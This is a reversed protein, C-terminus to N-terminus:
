TASYQIHSNDSSDDDYGSTQEESIKFQILVILYTTISSAIGTLVSLDIPFLGYANFELPNSMMFSILDDAKSRFDDDTSKSKMFFLFNVVKKWKLRVHEGSTFLAWFEIGHLFLLSCSALAYIESRPATFGSKIHNLMYYLQVTVCTFASLLSFIAQKGFCHNIKVALEQLLEVVERIHQISDLPTIARIKINALTTLRNLKGEHISGHHPGGMTMNLAKYQAHGHPQPQLTLNEVGVPFNNMGRLLLMARDSLYLICGAFQFSFLLLGFKPMCFAIWYLLTWIRNWNVGILYTLAGITSGCTMTVICALISVRRMKVNPMTFSIGFLSRLKDDCMAFTTLVENTQSRHRIAFVLSFIYAFSNPIFQIWNAANSIDSTNGSQWFISVLCTSYLVLVAYTPLLQKVYSARTNVPATADLPFPCLGFLKSFYYFSKIPQM